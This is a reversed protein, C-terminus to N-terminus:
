KKIILIGHNPNELKYFDVCYLEEDTHVTIAKDNIATVVGDLIQIDDFWTHEQQNDILYVEDGVKCDKVECIIASLTCDDKTPNIKKSHYALIFQMKEKTTILGAM